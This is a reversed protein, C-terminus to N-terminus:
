TTQIVHVVAEARQRATSHWNWEDVVGSGMGAATGHVESLKRNYIWAQYPTLSKEAEHIANLDDCFFWNVSAGSQDTWHEPEYLEPDRPSSEAHFKWGMWGAIIYNLEEDTRTEAAM